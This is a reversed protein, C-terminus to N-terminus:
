PHKRWAIRVLAVLAVLIFLFLTIILILREAGTLGPTNTQTVPAPSGAATSVVPAPTQSAQGTESLVVDPNVVEPEPLGAERYIVVPEENPRVMAISGSESVLQGNAYLANSAADFGAETDGYIALVNMHEDWPSVAAHFFGIQPAGLVKYVNLLVNNKTSNQIDDILPVRSPTGLLILNRGSLTDSTTAATRKVSINLDAISGSGLLAVMSFASQLESINPNDPLIIEVPDSNKVSVFPYPFFSLDPTPVSSFSVQFYSDAYIRTWSSNKDVQQCNNTPLLNAIAFKVDLKRTHRSRALENLARVPLDLAVWSDGDVPNVDIAGVYIDNISVVAYSNQARLVPSFAIHLVLRAGAALTVGPPSQFFYYSDTIGLGTVQRDSEGLQAFSTRPNVWPLTQDLANNDVLTHIFQFSGTLSRFTAEHVFAQGAMALGAEDNGGVLLINGRPRWPSNFIQVVGDSPPIPLGDESVFGEETPRVPLADILEAVLPQNGLTGLVVLNSVEKQQSTLSSATVVRVPLNDSTMTTGLRAAVQAAVTLTLDDPQDPLVFIIPAIDMGDGKVVIAQPLDTLQPAPPTGSLDIRVLSTSRVILWQGTNFSDECFEDTLRLYGDFTLNIGTPLQRDLPVVFSVTHDQGDGVPRISTLEQDNALVTLIAEQSNLLPSAVYTLQVEVSGVPWDSQFPIWAVNTGYLGKLRLDEYGLDRFTLIIVDTNDQAHVPIINGFALLCALLLTVLRSPKIFM